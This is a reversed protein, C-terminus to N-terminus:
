GGGVAELIEIRDGATLAHDGYRSRPIVTRNVAVAVRQEALGLSDLLSAVSAPAPVERPEGNLEIPVLATNPRQSTEPREAASDATAGRRSGSQPAQM